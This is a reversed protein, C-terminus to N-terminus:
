IQISGFSGPILIRSTKTFPLLAEKSTLKHIIASAPPAFGLWVHPKTITETRDTCFNTVPDYPHEPCYLKYYDM